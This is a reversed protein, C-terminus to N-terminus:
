SFFINLSFTLACVSPRICSPCRAMVYTGKGVALPALFFRFYSKSSFGQPFFYSASFKRSVEKQRKKELLAKRKAEDRKKQEFGEKQKRQNDSLHLRSVVAESSNSEQLIGHSQSTNETSSMSSLDPM